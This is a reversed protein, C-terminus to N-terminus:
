LHNVLVFDLLQRANSEPAIKDTEVNLILPSSTNELGFQYTKDYYYLAIEAAKTYEGAEIAEMAPRVKDGLKKAIKNFSHLLDQKNEDSYVAVLHRLREGLPASLNILPANKMARWFAEPLYGTGIKRSENEIWIRRTPDLNRFIEFLQNEFQETTPQPEEGIWGFASGKHHSLGELDIVQEGMTALSKLIETKGCGTRGGLVIYSRPSELAKYIYQRYAKYGGTLVAVDFGTMELLWSLSGSRKGGRWCHVLVKKDPALLQADRVLDGMKLGVLDLGILTAEESGIQKYITGVRAREEDTFLPLNLAGPIHGAAYEAPSRVDLLVRDNRVDWLQKAELKLM